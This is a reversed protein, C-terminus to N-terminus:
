SRKRLKKYYFNRAKEALSFLYSVPSLNYDWCGVRSIIEGGFGTKFRYLGSMTHNKDETPPIGFFDYEEAGARKSLKIAEWQLLYAPMLNRKHNSSAGYLYTSVKGSILVLIGALLDGDHEAFLLKMEAYGSSNVRNYVSQYYERSHIAISDRKATVEYMDYWNDLADIGVERVEVGKKGALRINYRTKKHMNSLLTDEDASINLITTDPVQIDVTAKTCGKLLDKDGSKEWLLDYRILLTSKPLFTKLEKSLQKLTILELLTNSPGHPIYALSFGRFVPRILVVIGESIVSTEYIFFLPKFGYEAKLEAWYPSQMFRDNYFLAQYKDLEEKSVPKLM